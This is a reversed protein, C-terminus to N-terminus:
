GPTKIFAFPLTGLYTCLGIAFSDLGIIM